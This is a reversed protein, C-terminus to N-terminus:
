KKYISYYLFIMLIAFFGGILIYNLVTKDSWKGCPPTYIQTPGYPTENPTPTFKEVQRNKFYM